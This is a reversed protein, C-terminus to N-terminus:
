ITGVFDDDVQSNGTFRYNIERDEELFKQNLLRNNYILWNHTFAFKINSNIKELTSILSWQHCLYNFHFIVWASVHSCKSNRRNNGNVFGGCISQILQCIYSYTKFCETNSQVNLKSRQINKTITSSFIGTILSFNLKISSSQM